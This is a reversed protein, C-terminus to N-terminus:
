VKEPDAFRIFMISIEDYNMHRDIVRFVGEKTALQCWLNGDPNNYWNIKLQWYGEAM